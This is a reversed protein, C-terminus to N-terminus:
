MFLELFQKEEDTMESVDAADSLDVEPISEVIEFTNSSKLDIKIEDYDVLVNLNLDYEKDEKVEKSSMELSLIEMEEEYATMKVKLSLSTEKDTNKFTGEAKIMQYVSASIKTETDSTSEFKATVLKIGFVSVYYEVVDNKDKNEYTNIGLSISQSSEEPDTIITIVASLVDEGDLYVTYKFLTEKDDAEKHAENLEEILTNLENEIDIQEDSPLEANVSEYSEIISNYLEKDNKIKELLTQAIEILDKETFKATLKNVDFEKGGLTITAEDDKTLEKDNFQETLSDSLYNFLVFYDIDSKNEELELDLEADMYYFRSYVDKVKHYLKNDKYLMELNLEEEVGQALKLNAYIEKLSVYLDGKLSMEQNDYGDNMSFSTDTTLKVIADKDKLLSSVEGSLKEKVSGISKSISETILEKDSKPSGSLLLFTGVGLAVVGLVVCLIVITNKLKKNM